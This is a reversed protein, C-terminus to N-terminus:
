DDRLRGIFGTNPAHFNLMVLEDEGVVRFGHETGVPAAVFTGPGARVVEGDVTFEAEGALVYFADAHDAHRHLDVGDFDPGFHLEIVELEPLESLARHKRIREGGGPRIVIGEM